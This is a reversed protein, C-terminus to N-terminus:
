RRRIRTAHIAGDALIVGRVEVFDGPVPGKRIRTGPGVRLPVGDLEWQGTLTGDLRVERGAPIPARRGQADPAGQAVWDSVLRIEDASLYPPGDFPMRPQSQGTIRRVLESAAPVGPLVVVREGGALILERSKLRLGEPPRDRLGRDSHCKVCRQLFIPAVDAYTVPEGPGPPPKAAVSAAAEAPGPAMGGAIWAEILATAAEDLYPPGTLPMRPLRSGRIRRVLESAAPDGPRAVPGNQSGRQLNAFSDLRLGLPAAEGSHCVICQDQLIPAVDVYTPVAASVRSPGTLVVTLLLVALAECRGFPASRAGHMGNHTSRHM